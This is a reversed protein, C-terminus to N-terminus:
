IDDRYPRVMIRSKDRDRILRIEVKECSKSSRMKEIKENLIRTFSELRLRETPEGCEVRLQSYCRFIEEMEVPEPNQSVAVFERRLVSAERPVKPTPRSSPGKGPRGFMRGEEQERVKREWVKRFSNYRAVVNMYRFRLAPNQIGRFGYDKLLHQVESETKLPIGRQRGSFFQEYEFELKRLLQELRALDSEVGKVHGGEKTITL